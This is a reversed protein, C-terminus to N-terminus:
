LAATRPEHVASEPDHLVPRRRSRDESLRDCTQRHRGPCRGPQVLPSSEGWSGSGAGHRCRADDDVAFRSGAAQSGVPRVRDRERDGVASRGTNQCRVRHARLRPSRYESQYHYKRRPRAEWGTPLRHQGLLERGGRGSYGTRFRSRNISWPLRRRIRLCGAALLVHGGASRDGGIAQPGVHAALGDRSSPHARGGLADLSGLLAPCPTPADPALSRCGAKSIRARIREDPNPGCGSGIRSHNENCCRISGAQM